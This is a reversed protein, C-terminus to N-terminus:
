GKRALYLFRSLRRDRSVVHVCDLFRQLGDFNAEGEIAVMEDRHRARADRWRGAVTEASATLDVVRLLEFGAARVLRENEGPPVYLYFGISSRTALEANTVIGTVVMADTYLMRGGPRLVRHWERLAGARDAIHCMADNSVVADFSADAFPLPGSGDVVRFRTRESLGAREALAAANAIGAENVDVGVVRCGVTRAMYAAPGGSGCGVELVESASSLGLMAFYSAWEAATIWSSQGIDEGYTEARVMAEAPRAFNSYASDYLDVRATM